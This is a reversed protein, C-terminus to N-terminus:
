WLKYDLPIFNVGDGLRKAEIELYCFALNLYRSDITTSYSGIEYFNVFWLIRSDM